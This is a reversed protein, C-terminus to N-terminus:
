LIVHGRSIQFKATNVSEKPLGVFSTMLAADADAMGIVAAHCHCAAKDQVPVRIAMAM